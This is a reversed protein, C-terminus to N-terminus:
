PRTLDVPSILPQGAFHAERNDVILSAMADRTQVTGSGQHPSLTVNPLATLRPDEGAPPLQEFRVGPHTRGLEAMLQPLNEREWHRYPTDGPFVPSHADVPPSIDWLKKM